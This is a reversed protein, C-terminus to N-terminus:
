VYFVYSRTQNFPHCLISLEQRTQSSPHSLPRTHGAGVASRIQNGDRVALRECCDLELAQSGAARKHSRHAGAGMLM